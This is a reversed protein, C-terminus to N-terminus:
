APSRGDLRARLWEVSSPGDMASEWGEVARHLEDITGITAVIEVVLGEVPEQDVAIDGFADEIADADPAAMLYLEGTDVVYSLIYRRAAADHWETGLELEESDRRREDAEYFGAIDM